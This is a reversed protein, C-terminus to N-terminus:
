RLASASPSKGVGMSREGHTVDKRKPVPVDALSGRQAGENVRRSVQTLSGQSGVNGAPSAGGCM